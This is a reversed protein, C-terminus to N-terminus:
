ALDSGEGGCVFDHLTPMSATPDRLGPMVPHINQFSEGTWRPSAKIRELRKGEPKRGFAKM